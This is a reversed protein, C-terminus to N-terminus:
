SLAARYWRSIYKDKILERDKEVFEMCWALMGDWQTMDGPPHISWGLEELTWNAKASNRLM